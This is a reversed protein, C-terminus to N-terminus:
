EGKMGKVACQKCWFQQDEKVDDVYIGVVFVPEYYPEIARKCRQCKVEEDDIDEMITQSEEFAKHVGPQDSDEVRSYIYDMATKHDESPGSNCGCHPCEVGTCLRCHSDECKSGDALDGPSWPLGCERCTFM